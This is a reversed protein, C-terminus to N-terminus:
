VNFTLYLEVAFHRRTDTVKGGYVFLDKFGTGFDGPIDEEITAQLIKEAATLWNPHALLCRFGNTNDGTLANTSYTNSGVLQGVMGKKILDEYVAPVNLAVGTARLYMEEFEAPVFFNRNQTPVSSKGNRQAINLLRGAKAFTQLFNAQTIQLPSVAEITATVAGIVGGTYASAIDDLDDEIVIANSNTFTKVRYWKTHGVAKFGRGVMSATFNGSTGTVNGSADISTLNSTVDTGIRNGAAVKPYFALMFKDQNFNREDAKQQVVTSHPDKIYSLFNDITYEGWYFSKYQDIILQSNNEFLNDRSLPTRPTYTKERIRDLNYINLKSGIKNIEGEYDRNVLISTMSRDYMEKLLRNSFGIAINTARASSM